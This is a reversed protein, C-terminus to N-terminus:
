IQYNPPPMKGFRVRLWCREHAYYVALKITTDLAGISIALKPKGTAVWVVATTIVLATARWTLAKAASRLKTEV